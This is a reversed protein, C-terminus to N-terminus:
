CAPDGSTGAITDGVPMRGTRKSGHRVDSRFGRREGPVLLGAADLPVDLQIARDQQGAPKDTAPKREVRGAVDFSALEHRGEDALLVPAVLFGTAVGVPGRRRLDDRRAVLQAANRLDEAARQVQGGALAPLRREVQGDRRHARGAEVGRFGAQSHRNSALSSMSLSKSEDVSRGTTM